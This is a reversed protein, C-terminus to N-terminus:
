YMVNGNKDFLVEYLRSPDKTYRWVEASASVRASRVGGSLPLLQQITLDTSTRRDGPAFVVDPQGLLKQVAAKSMGVEVRERNRAVQSSACGAFALLAVFLITRKMRLLWRGCQHDASNRRIM